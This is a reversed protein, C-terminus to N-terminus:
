RFGEYQPHENTLDVWLLKLKKNTLSLLAFCFAEVFVFTITITYINIIDFLFLSAICLLYVGSNAVTIFMYQKNFGFPILRNGGLFVNFGIFIASLGLIRIISKAVPLEQGTFFLVVQGSTFFIILYILAVLSVVLLMVKNIYSISKERSIKPFTAQAITGILTKMILTIKEALDYITVEQMGLFKGIILKNMYLYVQQSITSIFLTVGEKFRIFILAKPVHIFDVGEKKFVLYTSIVGGILAGVSNLLPIFVYDSPGKILIFIAIIFLSRVFLNVYTIYKMKEIGQFFWAPFFVDNLTIFFTFIYVILNDHFFDSSFILAMYVIFCLVWLLSKIIYISSVFESLTKHENRCIAVDKPGSINFGFNIILSFYSVLAQAFIVVGYKELGVVRILYPYTILPSLLAFIQFISLFSFNTIITKNRLIKGRFNKNIGKLDKMIYWSNKLDM